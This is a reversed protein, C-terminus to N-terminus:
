RAVGLLAETYEAPLGRRIASLALLVALAACWDRVRDGDLSPLAAIGDDLSGGTLLPHLAWDVADMAPDGISPRPDIAVIGDAGWLVNGPHLDGHVLATADRRALQGAFEWSRRQVDALVDPNRRAALTFMFDVRESLPIFCAKDRPTHGALEALMADVQDYPIDDDSLPTGPVIGDLLLADGDADLLDVVYPSDAWVRLAAAETAAIETDPTLKLVRSRGGADRCLLTRGTNGPMASLVELGWRACLENVRAPLGDCWATVGPGFRDVLRARAATDLVIM